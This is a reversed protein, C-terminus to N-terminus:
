LCIINANTYPLEESPNQAWPECCLKFFSLLTDYMANVIVIPDLRRAHLPLLLRPFVYSNDQEVKIM